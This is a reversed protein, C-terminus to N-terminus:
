QQGGSEYREVYGIGLTRFIAANSHRKEPFREVAAVDHLSRFVNLVEGDSLRVEVAIGNLGYSIIARKRDPSVDVKGIKSSFHHLDEPTRENPFITREQGTALDITLIRSPGLVGPPKFGQDTGNDFMVFTAARVHRVSHQGLFTGRVLRKIHGQEGDLIAFADLRRMSVVLDGPEIDPMGGADRGVEHVFNLHLPNCGDNTKRLVSAFPSEQLAKALDISRLLQGEPDIIYVADRYPKGTHCDLGVTEKGLTFSVPRNSVRMGPVLAVESDTLHPWHHSYDRRFWVPHGDPNIRAVGAGYPFASGARHSLVALLDGNSYLSVGHVKVDESFSFGPVLEYPFEGADVMETKAAQELEDPRYPWVRAVKGQRDYEVALCGADPCLELFQFQGGTWLVRNDLNDASVFAIRSAAAAERPVDSFGAYHGDRRNFSIKWRWEELEKERSFAIDLTARATKVGDAIIRYPFVQYKGVVGGYAFATLLVALALLALPLHRSLARFLMLPNSPPWRKTPPPSPQPKPPTM